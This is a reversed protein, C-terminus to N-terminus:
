LLSMDIGGRAAAAWAAGQVPAQWADRVRVHRWPRQRLLKEKQQLKHNLWLNQYHLGKAQEATQQAVYFSTLM